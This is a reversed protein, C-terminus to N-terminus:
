DALFSRRKKVPATESQSILVQEKVFIGSEKKKGIFELKSLTEFLKSTVKVFTIVKQINNNIESNIYERKFKFNIPRICILKIM